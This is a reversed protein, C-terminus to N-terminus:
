AIRRPEPAASATTIKAHDHLQHDADPHRARSPRHQGLVPAILMIAAPSLPVAVCEWRFTLFCKGCASEPEFNTAFSRM